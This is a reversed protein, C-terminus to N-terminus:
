LRPGSSVDSLAPRTRTRGREAAGQAAPQHQKGCNNTYASTQSLTPMMNAAMRGDRSITAKWPSIRRAYESAARIMPPSVMRVNEVKSM